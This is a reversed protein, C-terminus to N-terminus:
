SLSATYHFDKDRRGWFHERLLLQFRIFAIAFDDVSAPSVRNPKCLLEKADFEHIVLLPAEHFAPCAGINEPQHATTGTFRHFGSNIKASPHNQDGVITDIDGGQCSCLGNLDKFLNLVDGLLTNGGEFGASVNQHTLYSRYLAALAIPKNMVLSSVM